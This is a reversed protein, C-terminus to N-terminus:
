LKFWFHFLNKKNVRVYYTHTTALIQRHWKKWQATLLVVHRRNADGIHNKICSLVYWFNSLLLIPSGTRRYLGDKTTPGRLQVLQFVFSYIYPISFTQDLYEKVYFILDVRDVPNPELVSINILASDNLEYLLFNFSYQNLNEDNWKNRIKQNLLPPSGYGVMWSHLRRLPILLSNINKRVRSTVSEYFLNM